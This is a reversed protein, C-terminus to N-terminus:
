FPVFCFYKKISKKRGTSPKKEERPAAMYRSCIAALQESNSSMGENVFDPKQNGSPNKLNIKHSIKSLLASGPISRDTRPVQENPSKDITGKLWVYIM